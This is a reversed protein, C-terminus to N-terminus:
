IGTRVHQARKKVLIEEIVLGWTISLLRSNPNLRLDRLERLAHKNIQVTDYAM